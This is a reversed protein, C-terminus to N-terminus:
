RRLTERLKKLALEHEKDDTTEPDAEKTAPFTEVEPLKMPIKTIEVYYSRDEQHYHHYAIHETVGCRQPYPYYWHSYKHCAQAPQAILGLLTAITAVKIM